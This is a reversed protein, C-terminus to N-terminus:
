LKNSRNQVQKQGDSYVVDAPATQILLNKKKTQEAKTRDLNFKNVTCKEQM